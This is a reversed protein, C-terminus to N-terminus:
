KEADLQKKIDETYKNYETVADNGKAMAADRLARVNDVYKRICDGYAAYASNFTKIKENSAQKGPYEPAVCNNAPISPMSPVAAAAQASSESSAPPASTAPQATPAPPRTSPPVPYQQALAVSALPAAIMATLALRVNM